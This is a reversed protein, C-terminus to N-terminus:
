WEGYISGDPQQWVTFLESVGLRDFNVDMFHNDDEDYHSSVCTVHVTEGHKVFYEHVYRIATDSTLRVTSM